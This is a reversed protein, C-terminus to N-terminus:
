RPVTSHPSSPSLAVSLANDGVCDPDFIMLKKVGKCSHARCHLVGWQRQWSVLGGRGQRRAAVRM